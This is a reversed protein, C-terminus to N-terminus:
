VTAELDHVRITLRELASNRPSRAGDVGGRLYCNESSCRSLM